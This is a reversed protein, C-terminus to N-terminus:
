SQDEMYPFDSLRKAFRANKPFHCNHRYKFKKSFFFKAQLRKQRFVFVSIILGVHLGSKQEEQNLFVHRSVTEIKQFIRLTIQNSRHKAPTLSVPSAPM